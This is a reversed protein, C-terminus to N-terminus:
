DDLAQFVDEGRAAVWAVVIFVIEPCVVVTVVLAGPLRNVPSAGLIPFNEVIKVTNATSNM